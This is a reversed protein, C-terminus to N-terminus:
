RFLGVSQLLLVVLMIPAVVKIMLAYLRKRHFPYKDQTVEDIITKPKVVWGILICTFLAVLPMLCNNSIYDLIDLIQGVSGNPLPLEFYFVNYGLCVISGTIVAYITVLISSRKRNWGTFDMISSVIAEMISVSSTVAAFAVIIFFALGVANGIPGMAQFVMPLSVFMLGPGASMGEIGMFTFVAPIIMLGALMAIATDFIEIQNISSMLNTDKKAYSGYAVMIGMAVSISFFLQGLADMVVILIDSFSMGSFDPILYIKLGELGTRTVGDADTHSLTLSFISIGIVMVVLIPMLVKSFKEIGKEVGSFVVVATLIFFVLMWFLPGFQSTIYGTFYGSEAAATGQGTLYVTLYKFVWGGIVSYYPLIITPVLCALIGIFGWRPHIKKYATLPSQRTKRGIAIETTLLAFGFTLALILYCFLFVGGGDKAALYPFRWINGLGVASGAAALIFGLQGS